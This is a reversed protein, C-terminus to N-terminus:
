KQYVFAKNIDDLSMLKTTSLGNSIWIINSSLNDAGAGKVINNRITMNNLLYGYITIASDKCYDNSVNEFTCNEITVTANKNLNELELHIYRYGQATNKFTCNRITISECKKATLQIADWEPDLFTCNEFTVASCNDGQVYVASGNKKDNHGNAFTMNKVTAAGEFYVPSGELTIGKGDLEVAEKFSIPNTVYVKDSGSAIANEIADQLKDASKPGVTYEVPNDNSQYSAYGEVVFNTGDGEAKCNAPDFNVFTGGSIEIKATGNKYNEDLCNILLQYPNTDNYKQKIDFKGGKIVATGDHVYVASINGTFDGGEIVVTGGDRVDVAYCDNEKADFKGNKITLESDEGQVSFLSWKKSGNADDWIDSGNSITKGNLDITMKVGPEVTIQETLNVNDFLVVTGGNKAAGKLAVINADLNYDDDYVPDITINFQINGSLIQGLINTRWNRQVPINDLGKSLEISNGATPQFTFSAGTTAKAAGNDSGDNVLIYSMSLWTYEELTGDNDIDAKLIEDEDPINAVDYTIKGNFSESQSVKGTSLDIVDAVDSIAVTSQTVNIGSAVAADWDAQTVGVNVQAFPRKLTVNISANGTVEFTEAAYFADRTEDNNGGTYDVKVAKLDETDYKDCDKNQAWFLVTYKQGKALAMEVQDTLGNQFADKTVQKNTEDAGSIQLIKGESDYVAYVLTKAGSGDSIARTQVGGEVGISFSVTAENGSQVNDLEDNSCSTALLMGAAAFMGIFLNKKM